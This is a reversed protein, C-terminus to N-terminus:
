GLFYDVLYSFRTDRGVPVVTPEVLLILM